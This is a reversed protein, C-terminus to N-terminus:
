YMMEHYFDDLVPDKLLKVLIGNNDYRKFLSYRGNKSYIEWYLKGKYYKKFNLIENDKTKWTYKKNNNNYEFCYYEGDEYTINLHFKFCLISCYFGCITYKM